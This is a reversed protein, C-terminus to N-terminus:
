RGVGVYRFGQERTEAPDYVNRLDVMVPETLAARMRALDLRRFENWETAVVLAHCGQAAEYPDEFFEVEKLERGANEIAQPDCARIQAGHDQLKRIIDIAPSDRVDDTNPKYSLGLVAVTKGEVGGAAKVIKHVMHERQRANSEVVAGVIRQEVGFERSFSVLAATDKPFCSGGFGPGPHLFKSSIRGDLGMARAVVHVDADVADCLNAIENIFGIKVALFANSAYKILESTVVSTVIFPVEILYLAGYLDKLIAVAEDDGAGIVVRDPRMFDNVASGERLFEPNSAVSCRFQQRGSEAMSEEILRRVRAATGVPVTSKTVVVKYGNIDRGITRAVEDVYTLDTGGDPQPPTPVAIMIVLSREVAERTDTTFSLRGNKRHRRVIEELGPEFIPIEGQQLRAIKQADNDVCIVNVGFEAFCAGTVLGVYGTGIVAINV